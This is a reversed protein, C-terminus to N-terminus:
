VEPRRPPGPERRPHPKGDPFPSFPDADQAIPADITGSLTPDDLVDSGQLQSTRVLNVVHAWRMRGTRLGLGAIIMVTRGFGLPLFNPMETGALCLAGKGAPSLAAPLLLDIACDDRSFLM